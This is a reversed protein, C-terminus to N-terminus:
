RVGVYTVLEDKHGALAGELIGAADAPSFEKGGLGYVYSLLKPREPLHYLASGIETYLAGGWSSVTDMRDMVAVTKFRALARRFQEHAMPRFVRLKVMGVKKGQKRLTDVAERMTGCASGMLVVAAEADECRYEEIVGYGRGFERAFEEQVAEIVPMARNMGEIQTRKFEFYYDQMTAPGVLIPRAVDLLSWNPRWTGLWDRVKKDEFSEVRELCHSLIFGDVCVMAPLSTREAIKVAQFLTDYGEQVSECFFQMWGSDRSALSDSHDGHINLPSSLSRSAVAMVIPLRLGGAIFLMEHMLALGQSATATMTRCGSAAAGICASMASHESEVAVFETDVLGDHVYNSFIQVIETSPTIPYAAVVDPNVQKMAYALAENGTKALIM